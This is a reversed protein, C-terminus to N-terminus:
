MMQFFVFIDISTVKEPYRSYIRVIKEEYQKPFLYSIEDPKLKIVKFNKKYFKVSEVPNKEGKAYNLDQWDVIIDEEVLDKGCNAIERENLNGKTIGKRDKPILCENVFKYLKRQRIRKVINRSDELEKCNPDSYEIEYLISDNLKIYKEPDYIIQEFHYKSNAKVLADRIMFNIARTVRHNYIRKHLFYRAHFMEYINVCEKHYYMIQDDKVYSFKMLRSSDFLSKRGIYYCDRALYDFKDVDISNRSNSVIDFLYPSRESETRDGRILAKIFKLDDTTLDISPPELSEYLHDLMMESGNEHKWKIEHNLVKGLQPIVENDFVHSFPGHGLDHCLAALTVCELDKDQKSIGKQEYLKKTLTYALHATGLSHEFRNHCAGPFVYYSAGLQKIDRLRQFENTDIFEVAWKEFTMYGHIPDNILKEEQFM